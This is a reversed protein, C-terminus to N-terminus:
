AVGRPDGGEGWKEDHGCLAQGRSPPSRSTMGAFAPIPEDDGRFRPDLSKPLRQIGAQAPIVFSQAVGRPDGGERPCAKRPFSLRIM